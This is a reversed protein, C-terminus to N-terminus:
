GRSENEIELLENQVDSIREVEGDDYRAVIGSSLVNMLMDLTDAVRALTKEAKDGAVGITGTGAQGGEAYYGVRNVRAAELAGLTNIYLPSETMWRPAVWEQAHVIGAPKEGTHDASGTVNGTFGGSAWNPANGTSLIQRAQGINATITALMTAFQAVGAGGFTVANAPNAASASTASSIAKATDIGLQFLAGAKHFDAYKEAELGAANLFSKYYNLTSEAIGINQQAAISNSKVTEKNAKDEAKKRTEASKAVIEDLEEAHKRQLTTTDQGHKDALAYLQEYKKDVALLEREIDSLQAEYLIDMEEQRKLMEEEFKLQEAEAQEAEIAAREEKWLAELERKASEHGQHKELLQAYKLDIKALEREDDSLSSLYADQKLKAIDEQAKQEAELWEKQKKELFVRQADLEEERRKEEDALAKYFADEKAQRAQEAAEKEAELIEKANYKARAIMAQSSGPSAVLFFKDWFGLSESGLQMNLESFGSLLETTVQVSKRLVKNMVGEGDEMSLIFGEWASTLKTIDGSLNDLQTEAMEQAAGGANEYTGTLKDVTDLNKSLVLLATQASRGVEDQAGALDLGSAAVDRLAENLPKGTKSLESMIRRLATGAQSGSIGANALAGLMATTEEVSVGAEAAVPAVYKMSEQFKSIDLASTSFSKAMVDVVRGTESASLGFGRVTAGAISAANPLDTGAAAALSLTAETAQLIEAKSFGLKAFETQLSAVESATFATSSGLRKSDETLLEMEERTIGLVAQLNSNAKEFEMFVSVASSVAAMVGGAAFTGLLMSKMGGLSHMIGKNAKQIGSLNKRHEQVHKNLGRMEKVAANYKKSGIENEKIVKNLQRKRKYINLLTGEVQQDNVILTIKRTTSM